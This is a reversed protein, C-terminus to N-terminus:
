MSELDNKMRNDTTVAAVEASRTNSCTPKNSACICQFNATADTISNVTTQIPSNKAPALAMRLLLLYAKVLRTVTDTNPFITNAM